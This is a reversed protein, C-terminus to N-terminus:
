RDLAAKISEAALAIAARGDDVFDGLSVFGHFMGGFRVHSTPVGLATLRAAYQDGEDRLPDFEATIVLTPPSNRLAADDALLPSVRPDDTSGSGGSLYHEIFWKMGAATLFYGDANEAYSTTGCRADTVPYVLLQYRLPAPSLQSVVAALNAGASDGGIALRDPDCGLDAAHAHAWRTANISDGLGAPFPHEPALRYDISLVAHGSRKALSRCINDHSELDGIVWGGGHLYVLLGLGDDARPRYLRAPVGGADLDRIEHLTESPERRAVARVERAETPTLQDFPKSGM